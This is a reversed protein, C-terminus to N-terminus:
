SVIDECSQFFLIPFGDLGSVSERNMMFVINKVEEDTPLKTMGNNQSKIILKPIFNLM